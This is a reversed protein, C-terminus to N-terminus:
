ALNAEIIKRATVSEEKLIFNVMRCIKNRLNSMCEVFIQANAHKENTECDDLEVHRYNKEPSVELFYHGLLHMIRRDRDNGACKAIIIRRLQQKDGDTEIYGLINAYEPDFDNMYPEFKSYVVVDRVTIKDNANFWIGRLVAKAKDEIQKQNYFEARIM